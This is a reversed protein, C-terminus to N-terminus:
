ARRKKKIETIDRSVCIIRRSEEDFLHSNTEVWIYSGNKKRIRHRLITNTQKKSLNRFYELVEEKEDTHLLDSLKNNILENPKYGLLKYSIPSVFVFHLDADVKTILDNANETILRYRKESEMLQKEALKLATIDTIFGELIYQNDANRGVAIGKEWVWKVEDNADIIRYVIQFSEKKNTAEIVKEWVMNKDESHIIDAYSLHNNDMIDIPDYGTVISSGASVFKMTFYIDCICRYAMGPLNSLLTSMMRQSELLALESKKKETVDRAIGLTGVVQEGESIPTISFETDIFTGKNLLFRM